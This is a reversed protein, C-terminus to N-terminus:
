KEPLGQQVQQPSTPSTDGKMEIGEELQWYGEEWYLADYTFDPGYTNWDEKMSADPPALHDFVFRKEKEQWRLGFVTKANYKFILRYPPRPYSIGNLIPTNFVRAGFRFREINESSIVELVKENHKARNPRYGVLTYYDIKKHSTKQIAYYVAGYWESTMLLNYEANNITDTSEELKIVKHNQDPFVIRGYFKFSGNRLPISWTYIRFLNDPATLKSLNQVQEFPFDFAEETGIVEDLTASFKDGATLREEETKLFITQKGLEALQAEVEQLNQAM